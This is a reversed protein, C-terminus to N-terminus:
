QTKKMKRVSDEDPPTRIADSQQCGHVNMLGFGFLSIAGGCQQQVSDSYAM